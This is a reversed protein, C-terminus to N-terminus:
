GTVKEVEGQYLALIHEDRPQDTCEQISDHVAEEEKIKVRTVETKKADTEELEVENTETTKKEPFFLSEQVAETTCLELDKHYTVEEALEVQREVQDGM